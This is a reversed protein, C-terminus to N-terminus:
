LVTRCHWRIIQSYYGLSTLIGFFDYLPNGIDLSIGVVEKGCCGDLPCQTKKKRAKRTTDVAAGGIRGGKKGRGKARGDSVAEEM